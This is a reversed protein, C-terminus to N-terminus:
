VMRVHMLGSNDIYMPGKCPHPLNHAVWFVGNCRVKLAFNALADALQNTERYVHSLLIPEQSILSRVERWWKYLRWSLMKEECISNVLVQSDSYIISLRYGSYNALRLGDCLARVEAIMSTGVDYFHSFAMHVNGQPDRICGGGGCEGPNGKCAGDVNLSFDCIPPIWRILKLMKTSCRPAYGFWLLIQLNQSNPDAKFHLTSLSHAVSSKINNIIAGVSSHTSEFRRSCREKWIYWMMLIISYLSVFGHPSCINSNQVFSWLRATIHSHLTVKPSVLPHIWRWLTVAFDSNIFLHDLDKTKPLHCCCCCSVLPIGIESIRADVPVARYLIKWSFLSARRYFSNHWLKVVAPRHVGRPRILNYASKTTFYGNNSAAWMCKDEESSLELGEMRSQSISSRLPHFIDFAVDSLSANVAENDAQFINGLPTDGIWIDQLIRSNRGNGHVWRTNDRIIKMANM